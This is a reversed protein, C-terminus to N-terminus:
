AEHKVEMLPYKAVAKPYLTTWAYDRGGQEGDIVRAGVSCCINGREDEQHYMVYEIGENSIFRVRSTM